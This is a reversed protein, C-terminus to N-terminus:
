QEEALPLRLCVAEQDNRVLLLEGALAPNNWTKQGKQFVRHRALEEHREPTARVLVIEGDMETMVLIVDDVLLIQGHGYRGRRAKWRENGTELEICQLIGGDLGYVYGDRIVVNSMKTKMVPKKWVPLPMLPGERNGYAIRSIQILEAGVGYGKSLFVRDEAVPVPQSVSANSDSNGPWEVEWLAEGDEARVSTVHDEDLSVIQRVGAITTLVPSAYSSRYNGASWQV